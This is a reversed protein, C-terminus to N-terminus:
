VKKAKVPHTQPANLHTDLINVVHRNDNPILHGYIDVTMQISSHGLQEKVYVPSVGDSLLLSAYTHRIDHVRMQRIGAKELASKFVRRVFNQEYPKGERQFVVNRKWSEEDREVPFPKVKQQNRLDLLVKYLQDSIDVRRTRGTKTPGVVGVKYSRKVNIFKRNWDIDGWRLGLIEGLRMGTRFACLFLPYHAPYVESCVNLFTNVEDPSMPEVAHKGAKLHLRKTLGIVPNAGILEEDLAYAMPGSIVTHVIQTISKSLGSNRCKLLLNRVDGRSIEDMRMKGLAPYVHKELALKYRDYTSARRIAKVYDELWLSAYEKFFPVKKKHEVVGLDGLALRAEILKAAELAKKEDRGFRKSKRQGRHNIFIWWEGSGKVKERVTVGM